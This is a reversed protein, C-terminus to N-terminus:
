GPKVGVGDEHRRVDEQVLRLDDGDALPAAGDIPEGNIYVGGRSELDTVTWVGKDDRRLAAHSRSVNEGSLVIDSAGSRGLICEWHHIARSSGGPLELYGWVEPEYREQLMSIGCRLLLWVALGALVYHSVQICIQIAQEM